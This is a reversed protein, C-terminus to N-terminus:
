LGSTDSTSQSSYSKTSMSSSGGGAMQSSGDATMLPGLGGHLGGGAALGYGAATSGGDVSLQSSSSSASTSKQSGLSAAGDIGSVSTRSSLSYVANDTQPATRNNISYKSYESTSSNDTVGTRRATSSLGEGSGYVSSVRQYGGDTTGYSGGGVGDSTSSFSVRYPSPSYERSQCRRRSYSTAAAKPSLSSTSSRASIAGAAGGQHFGPLTSASRQRNYGAGLSESNDTWIHAM